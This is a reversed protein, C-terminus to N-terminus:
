FTVRAGGGAVQPGALPFLAIRPPGSAMGSTPRALYLLVGGTAAAALGAIGTIGAITNATKGAREIGPDFVGKNSALSELDKARKSGVAGAILSTAILAAGGILAAYAGTRSKGPPPEPATRETVTPPSEAAPPPPPGPSV